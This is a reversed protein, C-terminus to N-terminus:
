PRRPPAHRTQPPREFAAELLSRYYPEDFTGSATIRVQRLSAEKDMLFGLLVFDRGPSLSLVRAAARESAFYRISSQEPEAREVVAPYVDRILRRLRQVMARAEPSMSALFEEVPVVRSM